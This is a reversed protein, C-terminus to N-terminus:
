KILVMKKTASFKDTELRYFYIGSSYDKGNWSLTHTGADFKRDALTEIKQGLINYVNLVIDSARPLTFSIKTEPNFPNPYNQSLNFEIPLLEPEDGVDTPSDLLEDVATRLALMAPGEKFFSLPMEFFIYKYDEGFYKWAITQGQQASLPDIAEYTYLPEPGDELTVYTACPIGYPSSFPDTHQETLLSDYELDPYAPNLSHAGILTAQYTTNDLPTEPEFRTRIHTLFYYPATYFSADSTYVYYNYEHTIGFNLGFRGMFVVKGGAYMYDRLKKLIDDDIFSRAIEDFFVGEAGVVVVEYSLLDLYDLSYSMTDSFYTYDYGELAQRMFSGTLQEDVFASTERNSRNVLLVTNEKLTIARSVLPDTGTSDSLKDEFDHALIQYSHENDDLLLPDNDIYTTDETQDIKIGDRYIFYNYFDYEENNKHWILKISNQQPIASIYQPQVPVSTPTYYYVDSETVAQNNGNIGQIAIIHENGENLGTFLISTDTAPVEVYNYLNSQDFCYIRYHDIESPDFYEWFIDLSHGDGPNKINVFQIPPIRGDLILTLGFSAKVLRAMYDFDMYVTSDSSSHYHTSFIKEQVFIAPYGKEDFPVHDSGGGAIVSTTLGSQISAVSAWDSLYDNESIYHLNAYDSNEIHGIMDHNIMLLIRDNREAAMDAYHKSGHLGSEESDFAIFIITYDTEIEAFLRALELMAATGSGNDDAGPSNPVADFHGGIVIQKNPYKIGPKVAVVNYCEVQSGGIQVGIFPDLYVSDYGYGVLQEYIWDRAAYNSDTGALRRTFSQLKEVYAQLTDASLLPLLSDINHIVASHSASFDYKIQPQFTVKINSKILPIFDFSEPERDFQYILFNDQAYIQNYTPAKNIFPCRYFYLIDSDIDTAILVASNFQEIINEQMFEVLFGDPLKYIIQNQFQNLQDAESQSTIKIKYLDGASIIPAFIYCFLIIIALKKM